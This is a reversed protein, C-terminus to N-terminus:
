ARSNEARLRENAAAIAQRLSTIVSRSPGKFYEDQVVRILRHCFDECGPLSPEVVTFLQGRQRKFLSLVPSTAVGVLDSGDQHEGSRMHLEAFIVGSAM